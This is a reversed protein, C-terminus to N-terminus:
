QALKVGRPWGDEGVLVDARILEGDPTDAEPYGLEALSSRTLQVRVVTGSDAPGIEDSFPVPVFDAMSYSEDNGASAVVLETGQTVDNPQSSLARADLPEKTQTSVGKGTGPGPSTIGKSPGSFTWLVFALVAAAAGASAWQMTRSLIPQRRNNRFAMLVAAEVEPPTQQDRVSAGVAETVEALMRAELLLEGCRGCRGAHEIASERAAVDLLEMRVLGHVIGDFEKCSIDKM